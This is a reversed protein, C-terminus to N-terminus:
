INLVFGNDDDGENNDEIAFLTSPLSVDEPICDNCINKALRKCPPKCECGCHISILKCGKCRAYKFCNVRRRRNAEGLEVILDILAINNMDHGLHSVEWEFITEGNKSPLDKCQMIRDLWCRDAYSLQQGKKHRQYVDRLMIIIHLYLHRAAIYSVTVIDGNPFRHKKCISICVQYYGTHKMCIDGARFKKKRGRERDKKYIPVEISSDINNESPLKVISFTEEFQVFLQGIMGNQYLKGLATYGYYEDTTPPVYNPNTVTEYLEQEENPWLATDVDSRANRSPNWNKYYKTKKQPVM